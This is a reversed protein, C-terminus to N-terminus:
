NEKKCFELFAQRKGRTNYLKSWEEYHIFHLSWGGKKELLLGKAMLSNDPRFSYGEDLVKLSQSNDYYIFGIKKEVIALDILVGSDECIFTTKYPIEMLNLLLSFDVLFNAYDDQTKLYNLFKQQSKQFRSSIQTNKMSLGLTDCYESYLYYRLSDRRILAIDEFSLKQIKNKLFDSLKFSFDDNEFPSAKNCPLIKWAPVEPRKNLEFSKDYKVIFDENNLSFHQECFFFEESKLLKECMELFNLKELPFESIFHAKMSFYDLFKYTSNGMKQRIKYSHILFVTNMLDESDLVPKALLLTFIQEYENNSVGNDSFYRLIGKLNKLSTETNQLFNTFFNAKWFKKTTFLQKKYIFIM